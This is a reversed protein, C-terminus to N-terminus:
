RWLNTAGHLGPEPSSFWTCSTTAKFRRAAFSAVANYYEVGGKATM